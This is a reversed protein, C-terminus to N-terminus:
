ASGAGALAEIGVISGAAAPRYGPLRRAMATFAPSSLAAILRTVAATELDRTRVAVFYRERVM